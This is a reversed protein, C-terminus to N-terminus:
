RITVDGTLGRIQVYQDPSVEDSLTIIANSTQGTPYFYVVPMTTLAGGSAGSGSTTLLAAEVSASGGAPSTVVAKVSVGVPLEIAWSEEGGVTMATGLAGVTQDAGSLLSSQGGSSDMSNISDTSSFVSTIKLQNGVAPDESAVNELKMVRGHRMAHVRLRIMEARVQDAARVIRRDTLLGGITPMVMAAAGAFVAMALLLELLTFASRPLLSNADLLQSKATLM